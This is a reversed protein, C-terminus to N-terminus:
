LLRGQLPWENLCIQGCVQFPGLDLRCYWLEHMLRAKNWFYMKPLAICYQSRVLIEDDVIRATYFTWATKRSYISLDKTVPKHPVARTLLRLYPSPDGGQRHLKMAMQLYIFQVGDSSIWSKKAVASMTCLRKLIPQPGVTHLLCCRHCNIEDESDRSLLELLLLKEKKCLQANCQEWYGTGIIDKLRRSSFALTSASSPPLLSAIYQLTEISLRFLPPPLEQM